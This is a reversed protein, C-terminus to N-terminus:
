VMGAQTSMEGMIKACLELGGEYFYVRAFFFCYFNDAASRARLRAGAGGARALWWGGGHRLPGHSAMSLHMFIQLM